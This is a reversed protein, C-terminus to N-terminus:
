DVRLYYPMRMQIGEAKMMSRWAAYYHYSEGLERQIIKSEGEGSVEKLLEM